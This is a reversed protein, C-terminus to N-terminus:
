VDRATRSSDQCSIQESRLSIIYDDTRTAPPNETQERGARRERCFVPWMESSFATRRPLSPITEGGFKGAATATALMHGFLFAHLAARASEM